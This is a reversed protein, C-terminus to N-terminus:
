ETLYPQMKEIGQRVSEASSLFADKEKKSLDIEIIKEIGGAGLLAPVGICMDKIAYQGSLYASVVLTKQENKLITRAMAFCGASPAYYASGKQLLAVIQAGRDATLKRIEDLDSENFVSALPAGNAYTKSFVVAMTDNHAGIILGQVDKKNKLRAKKHIVAALRASDLVGSLGMVRGANFGSLKYALYTMADLPNTVMIVIANPALKKIKLVVDKVVEANKKLLDDRTMSPLRPFGATVVIIKSDRMAEFDDCGSIKCEHGIIYSADELDLAKAKALGPVVDVLMVDAVDAEALRMALTSGVNGAGIITVKDKM